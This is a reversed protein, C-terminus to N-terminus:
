AIAVADVRLPALLAAADPDIPLTSVRFLFDGQGVVGNASFKRGFVKACQILAAQRVEAPVAAWGWQATVQVLPGAPNPIWTPWPLQVKSLVLAHFPYGPEGDIVGNLPYPTYTGPTLTSGYGGNNGTDTKVVLGTTTSFDDVRLYWPDHVDFVRATATGADNFQRHTFANIQGTVARTVQEITVDDFTDAIGCYAVVDDPTAYPDGLAM